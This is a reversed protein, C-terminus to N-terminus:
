ANLHHTSQYRDVYHVYLDSITTISTNNITQLSESSVHQQEHFELVWEWFRTLPITYLWLMLNLSAICKVRSDIRWTWPLKLCLSFLKWWGHVYKMSLINLILPLIWKHTLNAPIQNPTISLSIGLNFTPMTTIPLQLRPRALFASAHSTTLSACRWSWEYSRWCLAFWCM